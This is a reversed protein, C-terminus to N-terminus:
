DIDEEKGCRNHYCKHICLNEQKGRTAEHTPQVRSPDIQHRHQDWFEIVPKNPQGIASPASRKFQQDTLGLYECLLYYCVIIKRVEM